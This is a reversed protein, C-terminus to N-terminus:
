ALEGLPTQPCAGKSITKSELDESIPELVIQTLQVGSEVWSTLHVKSYISKYEEADEDHRERLMCM